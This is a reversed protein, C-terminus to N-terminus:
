FYERMPIIEQLAELPLTKSMPMSFYIDKQQLVDVKKPM